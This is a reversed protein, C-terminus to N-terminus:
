PFNQLVFQNEQFSNIGLLILYVFEINMASNTFACLPQDAYKKPKLKREKLTGCCFKRTLKYIDQILRNYVFPESLRILTLLVGTFAFLSEISYM